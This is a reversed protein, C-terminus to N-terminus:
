IGQKVNTKPIALSTVM